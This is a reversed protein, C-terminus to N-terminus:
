LWSGLNFMSVFRKWRKKKTILADATNRQQVSAWFVQFASLETGPRAWSSLGRVRGLLDLCAGAARPWIATFWYSICTGSQHRRSSPIGRARLCICCWPPSFVPALISFNWDKLPEGMWSLQFVKKLGGKNLEGVYKHLTMFNLKLRSEVCVTIWPSKEIRTKMRREMEAGWWLLLGEWTWREWVPQGSSCETRLVNGFVQGTDINNQNALFYEKLLMKPDSADCGFWMLLEHYRNGRLIM